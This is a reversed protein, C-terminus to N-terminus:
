LKGYLIYGKNRITKLYLPKKPNTEIKNRLRTIQVDISRTNIGGLQQSLQERDVTQNLNACLHHLLSSQTSTLDIVGEAGVLTDSNMDFTIVDGISVITSADKVQTRKLISQIRLLLEKPEFPKPLYDDAGASLGDIRHEVDGMATLMLIPVDMSQRIQATLEVGTQGPMMVDVILLDFVFQELRKHAEKADRATSVFYGNDTLYQQLLDRIRTDDDVVLLHTVSQHLTM